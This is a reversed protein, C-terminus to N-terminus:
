LAGGFRFIHLASKGSVRVAGGVELLLVDPVEQEDIIGQGGAGGEGGAGRWQNSGVEYYATSREGEDSLPASRPGHAPRTSIILAM